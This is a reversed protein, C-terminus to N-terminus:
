HQEISQLSRFTQLHTKDFYLRGYMEKLILICLDQFLEIGQKVNCNLILWGFAKAFFEFAINQKIVYDTTQHQDIPHGRERTRQINAEPDTEIVVLVHMSKLVESIEHPLEHYVRQCAPLVNDVEEANVISYIVNAFWTRDSVTYPILSIFLCSISNSRYNTKEISPIQGFSLLLRWAPM